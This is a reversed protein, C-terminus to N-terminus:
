SHHVQKPLHLHSLVHQVMVSWHFTHFFRQPIAPRKQLQQVMKTCFDKWGDDAAILVAPSLWAPLGQAAFPTAVLPLGHSLAEINKTQIGSGSRVPNIFLSAGLFYPEVDHVDGAYILKEHRIDRLHLYDKKEIRGCIIVRFPDKYIKEFAPIIHRAIARFAEANPRYDLTGAFFIIPTNPPIGHRNCLFRHSDGAAPTDRFVTGYPLVECAKRAIGFLSVAQELDHETKFLVHDAYSYGIKEIWKMVPWLRRGSERFRIFEINHAHIIFRIGKRKLWKGLLGYYSHEIIVHTIKERLIFRKIQWLVYTNLWQSKSVPLKRIIHFSYDKAPQNNRSCLCVLNVHRGLEDMFNVVGKQGGFREPFVKYSVICLFRTM